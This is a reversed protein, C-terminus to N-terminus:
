TRRRSSYTRQQCLQYRSLDTLQIKGSGVLIRNLGVECHILPTFQKGQLTALYIDYRFNKLTIAIRKIQFEVDCITGM